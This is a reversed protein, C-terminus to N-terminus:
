DATSAVAPRAPGHSPRLMLANGLVALMVGVLTLTEARFGEFVISVLLAILPTMVGITGTPGPGIRDQLTLFCAFTLISGALALYAFAVWWAGAKPIEFPAGRAAGVLAAAFAGYAMGWGLAPWFAIGRLRNRSATVSGIASLLVSGITFAAGWEVNPGRRDPAFEPWFILAVGALGLLGGPVFTRGLRVGFLVRAGLGTVLPSASYGVAVLGSAIYREAHYVGVYSVGYLFTGQLALLAHDRLNCGIREGRSACAALVLAGALGFRMAVGYEPAVSAVEFTVAYWTTAWTLVCVAFLQWNALRQM